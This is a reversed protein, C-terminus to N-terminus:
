SAAPATKAKARSPRAARVSPTSASKATQTAAPKLWAAGSAKFDATLADYQEATFRRHAKPLNPNLIVIGVLKMAKM